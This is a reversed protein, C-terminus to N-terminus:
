KPPPATLRERVQRAVEESRIGDLALPHYRAATLYSDVARATDGSQIYIEGISSHIQPRESLSLAKRYSAIAQSNRGLLQENRAQLLFFDVSSRCAVRNPLLFELNRRARLSAADSTGSEEAIMTRATASSIVENCHNPLYVWHWLGWGSLLVTIAVIGSRVIATVPSEM